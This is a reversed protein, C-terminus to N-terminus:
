PWAAVGAGYCRSETLGVMQPLDPEPEAPLLAAAAGGGGGAGAELLVALGRLPTLQPSSSAAAPKQLAALHQQRPDRRVDVDAAM